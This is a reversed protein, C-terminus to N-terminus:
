YVRIVINSIAKRYINVCIHGRLFLKRPNQLRLPGTEGTVVEVPYRGSDSFEELFMTGSGFKQTIPKCDDM